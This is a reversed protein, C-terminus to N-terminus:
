HVVKLRFTFTSHPFICPANAISDGGLDQEFCLIVNILTTPFSFFFVLKFIMEVFASVVSVLSLAPEFCLIVDIFTAPLSFILKSILEALASFVSAVSLLSLVPVFHLIVNIFTTTCSFVLKFIM